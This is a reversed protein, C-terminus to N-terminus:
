PVLKAWPEMATVPLTRGRGGGCVMSIAHAPHPAAVLLGVSGLLTRGRFVLEARSASRCEPGFPLQAVVQQVIQQNSCTLALKRM